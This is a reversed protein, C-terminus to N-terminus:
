IYAAESVMGCAEEDPNGCYLEYLASILVRAEESVLSYRISQAQRRTTVISERRLTSLHQSLASQSLPINELLESVSMEKEALQCLIMLRSENAMSRLLNCARSANAGLEEMEM